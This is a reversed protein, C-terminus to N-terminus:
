ERKSGNGSMLANERSKMILTNRLNVKSQISNKLNVKDCIVDFDEKEADSKMKNLIPNLWKQYEIEAEAKIKARKADERNFHLRLNRRRKDEAVRAEETEIPPGKYRRIERRKKAREQKQM